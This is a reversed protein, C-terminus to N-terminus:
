SPRERTTTNRSLVLLFLALVWHFAVPIGGADIVNDAGRLYQIILRSLMAAFYILSVVRLWNRDNAFRPVRRERVVLGTMLMLLAIQAPLLLPYPLLGSYWQEMPPLWAPAILVVEVQGLVRLLFLGTCAWLVAIRVRSTSM